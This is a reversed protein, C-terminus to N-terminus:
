RHPGGFIRLILNDYHIGFSFHFVLSLLFAFPILLRWPHNGFWSSVTLFVKPMVMGKVIREQEKAREQLKEIFDHENM